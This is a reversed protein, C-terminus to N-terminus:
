KGNRQRSVLIDHKVGIFSIFLALIKEITMKEV